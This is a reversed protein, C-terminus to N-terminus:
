DSDSDAQGGVEQIAKWSPLIELIRELGKVQVNVGIEGHASALKMELERIGGLAMAVNEYLEAPVEDMKAIFSAVLKRCDELTCNKILKMRSTPSAEMAKDAIAELLETMSAFKVSIKGSSLWKAVEPLVFKAVKDKFSMNKLAEDDPEQELGKLLNATADFWADNIVQVQLNALLKTDQAINYPNSSTSSVLKEVDIGLCVQADVVFAGAGNENGRAFVGRDALTALEEPDWKMNVEMGGDNIRDFTMEKIPADEDRAENWLSELTEIAQDVKEPGCGARAVFVVKGKLSWAEEDREATCPTAKASVVAKVPSDRIFLPAVDGVVLTWDLCRETGRDGSFHVDKGDLRIKTREIQRGLRARLMRAQLKKSIVGSHETANMFHEFEAFSIKGDQDRDLGKLASVLEDQEGAAGLQKALGVIEATELFGSKDTDYMEFAKRLTKSSITSPKEVSPQPANEPLQVSAAIQDLITKVKTLIGARAAETAPSPEKGVLAEAKKELEAVEALLREMDAADTM